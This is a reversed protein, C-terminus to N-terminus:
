LTREQNMSVEEKEKLWINKEQKFNDGNQKQYEREV